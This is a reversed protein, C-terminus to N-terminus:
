PAVYEVRLSVTGAAGPVTTITLTVDYWLSPDTTLGADQYVRNGIQSIDKVGSEFTVETPTTRASAISVASAYADADVVAGGDAASKYLGIDFAGSTMADNFLEIKEIRWSSHVRVMRITSTATESTSLEVTEVAARVRGGTAYVSNNTVLGSAGDSNTVQTSKLATAM